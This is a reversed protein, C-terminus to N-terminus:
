IGLSNNYIVLNDKILMSFKSNSVTFSDETKINWCESGDKLLFM